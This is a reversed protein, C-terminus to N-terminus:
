KSMIKSLALSFAVFFTVSQSPIGAMQSFISMFVDLSYSFIYIYKFHVTNIRRIPDFIETNIRVIFYWYISIHVYLFCVAVVIVSLRLFKRERERHREGGIEGRQRDIQISAERQRLVVMSIKQEDPHDTYQM